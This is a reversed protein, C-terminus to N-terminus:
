DGMTFAAKVHSQLSAQDPHFEMFGNASVRHLGDITSIGGVSFGRTRNLINIIYGKTLSTFLYPSLQDYLKEAASQGKALEATLKNQFSRMFLQQRAMRAQNSGDSVFYRNRVFRNAQEGTLLVESGKVFGPDIITLDEEIIVPVGGLSDAIAGVDSMNISVYRDIPVGFLLKSVAEATLQSSRDRTGGFGHALCIQALRTGADQGLVSLITIDAMTDRDIHLLDVTRAEENITILLLFDAQGSSRLSLKRDEGSPRDIGMVLINVLDRNYPYQTGGIDLQPTGTLRGELSGRITEGQNGRANLLAFAALAAAALLVIALLLLTIRKKRLAESPKMPM